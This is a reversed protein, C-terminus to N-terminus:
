GTMCEEHGADKRDYMGLARCGEKRTNRMGKMGGTMCEEHGEDRTKHM